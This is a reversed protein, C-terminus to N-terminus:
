KRDLERCGWRRVIAISMMGVALVGYFWPSIATTLNLITTLPSTLLEADNPYSIFYMLALLVMIAIRRNIESM